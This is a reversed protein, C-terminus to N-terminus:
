IEEGEVIEEEIIFHAGNEFEEAKLLFGNRKLAEGAITLGIGTGGEKYSIGAEFIENDKLLAVPIGIGTDFIDIKIKGNIQKSVFKIEKKEKGRMWYISNDILNNIATSFDEEHGYIKDVELELVIDINEEKIKESFPAKAINIIKELSFDAKNKRRQRSLPRIKSFLLNLQHSYSVIGDCDLFLEEIEEIEKNNKIELIELINEIRTKLYLPLTKLSNIHKSGEHLLLEVLKGITIEKEYIAIQREIKEIIIKNEKEKETLILSIAERDELAINLTELRQDIRSTVKSYDIIEKLKEKLTKKKDSESIRNKVISRENEIIRVLIKIISKFNFFDENEQLGDRASKEKLISNNESSINITGSIQNVSLRKTPNQVREKNLDLWDNDTDGYPRIRFNEKYIRVGSIEDLLLKIENIALEEKNRSKIDRIAEPERDFVRFDINIPEIFNKNKIELFLPNNELKYSLTNGFKNNEFYLDIKNEIINIEGFLRYHYYDLFEFPLVEIEESYNSGSKAIESANIVIKFNEEQQNLSKVPSLLLKLQKNLSELKKEDWNSKLSSIFLKTGNKEETKETQIELEIEDLFKYKEFDRWDILILNKEKDKITELKLVDGLIGVSYRGLGKEGLVRRNKKSSYKEKVKNNTGPIMWKEAIDQYSMGNGNDEVLLVPNNNLNFFKIIVETADADYSNKILEVIAAIDDIILDKGISNLIRASPRIKAQRM